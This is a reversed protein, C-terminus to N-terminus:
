EKVLKPQRENMMVCLMAYGSTLDERQCIVDEPLKLKTNTFNWIAKIGAEVVRDASEQAFTSPVTLIAITANLNRVQENEFDSLFPDRAFNIEPNM